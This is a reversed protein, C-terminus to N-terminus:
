AEASPENPAKKILEAYSPVSTSRRFVWALSPNLAVVKRELASLEETECLEAAATLVDALDSAFRGYATRFDYHNWTEGEERPLNPAYFGQEHFFQFRNPLEKIPEGREALWEAREVYNQFDYELRERQRADPERREERPQRALHARWETETALRYCTEEFRQHPMVLGHHKALKWSLDANDHRSIFEHVEGLNMHDSRLRRLLPIMLRAETGGHERELFRYLPDRREEKMVDFQSTPRPVHVKSEPVWSPAFPQFDRLKQAAPLRELKKLAQIELQRIRERTVNFTRGVEDLTRMDDEGLGYRLELIRRERYSLHKLVESLQEKQRKDTVQAVVDADEDPTLDKLTEVSGDDSVAVVRDLSLPLEEVNQLDAVKEAARALASKRDIRSRDVVHQPFRSNWDEEQEPLPPPPGFSQREAIELNTPERGLEAELKIETTKMAHREDHVHVPLRILRATDAMGRQMRMRIYEGCYSPFSAPRLNKELKSRNVAQWLGVCGDQVLDEMPYGLRKAQRYAHKAIHVVLRLNHNFLREAAHDDGSERAGILRRSETWSLPPYQGALELIREMPEGVVRRDRLEPEVESVPIDWHYDAHLPNSGRENIPVNDYTSLDDAPNLDPFDEPIDDPIREPHPM